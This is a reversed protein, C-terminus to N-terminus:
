DGFFLYNLHEARRKMLYRLRKYDPNSHSGLESDMLKHIEDNCKAWEKISAEDTCKGGCYACTGSYNKSHMRNWYINEMKTGGFFNIEYLRIKRKEVKVGKIIALTELKDVM